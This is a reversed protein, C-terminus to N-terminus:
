KKILYWGAPIDKGYMDMRLLIDRKEKRGSPYTSEVTFFLANEVKTKKKLMQIITNNYQWGGSWRFLIKRGVLNEDVIKLTKQISQGSIDAYLPDDSVDVKEEEEQEQPWHMDPYRILQLEQEYFGGKIDEGTDDQLYFMSPDGCLSRRIGIVLFEEKSWNATYGKGFQGKLRSVRVKDGINFNILPPDRPQQCPRAAQQELFDPWRSASYPTWKGIGLHPKNNYWNLLSDLMAIWKFTELETFRKWMETKLTRNFREIMVAKSDGHTSYRIIDHKELFATMESNYFEKGQDIWIRSPKRGSEKLIQQFGELVVNAHKSKLPVAWAYRTLVDIVTLIWKFGKNQTALGSMDALDMAWIEDKHLVMIKRKAFVKKVPKHLEIRLQKLYQEKTVGM